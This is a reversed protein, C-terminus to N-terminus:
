KYRNKDIMHECLAKISNTPHCGLAQLLKCKPVLRVPLLTAEFLEPFIPRHFLFQSHTTTCVLRTRGSFVTYLMNHSILDHTM